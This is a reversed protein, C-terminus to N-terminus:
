QTARAHRTSEQRLPACPGVRKGLDDLPVCQEGLGRERSHLLKCVHCGFNRDMPSRCVRAAAAHSVAETFLAESALRHALRPSSPVGTLDSEVANSADTDTGPHFAEVGAASRGDTDGAPGDQEAAEPAM